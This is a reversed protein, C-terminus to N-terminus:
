DEKKKKDQVKKKATRKRKEGKRTEEEGSSSSSDESSDESSSSDMTITGERAAKDKLSPAKARRGRGEMIKIMKSLQKVVPEQGKDEDDTQTRDLEELMAKRCSELKKDESTGKNIIILSRQIEEAAHSERAMKEVQKKRGKISLGQATAASVEQLREQYLDALHLLNDRAATDNSDELEMVEPSETRASRDRSRTRIDRSRELNDVQQRKQAALLQIRLDDEEERRTKERQERDWQEQEARRKSIDRRMKELELREIRLREEESKLRLSTM